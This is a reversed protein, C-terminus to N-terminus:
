WRIIGIFVFIISCLIYVATETIIVKRINYKALKFLRKLGVNIIWLIIVSVFIFSVSFLLRNIIFSGLNKAIIEEHQKQTGIWFTSVMFLLFLVIISLGINIGIVKYIKKTIICNEKEISM